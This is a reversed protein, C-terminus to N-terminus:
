RAGTGDAKVASRTKATPAPPDPIKPQQDAIQQDLTKSKDIAAQVKPDNAPDGGSLIVFGIVAGAVCVGIIGAAIYTKKKDEPLFAFNSM